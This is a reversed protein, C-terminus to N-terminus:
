KLEPFGIYGGAAVIFVLPSIDWMGITCDVSSSLVEGGPDLPDSCM